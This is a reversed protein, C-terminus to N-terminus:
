CVMTTGQLCPVPLGNPLHEAKTLFLLTEHAGRLGGILGDGSRIEFRTIFVPSCGQCIVIGNPRYSTDIDMYEVINYWSYIHLQMTDEFWGIYVLYISSDVKFINKLFVYDCHTAICSSKTHPPHLIHLPRVM